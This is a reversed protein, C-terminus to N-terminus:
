HREIWSSDYRNVGLRLLRGYVRQFPAHTSETVVLLLLLSAIPTVIAAEGTMLGMYWCALVCLMVPLLYYLYKRISRNQVDLLDLMIKDMEEESTQKSDSGEADENAVKEAKELLKREEDTFSMRFWMSKTNETNNM